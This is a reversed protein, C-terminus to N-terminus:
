LRNRVLRTFPLKELSAWGILQPESLGSEVDNIRGLALAQGGETRYKVTRRDWQTREQWLLVSGLSGSARVGACGENAGAQRQPSAKCLQAAQCLCSCGTSVWSAGGTDRSGVWTHAQHGTQGATACPTPTPAVLSQDGSFMFSCDSLGPGGPQESGPAPAQM